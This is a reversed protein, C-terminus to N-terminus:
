VAAAIAMDSLRQFRLINDGEDLLGTTLAVFTLELEPDVWFLTSGAGHNGFTRPSSLTGFQHQCVQDGRMSFGLGIYAPFPKWGRSLALAKYLQNPQDGTRNRTALDLIRPGVIRVGDLEGGRRLAEAFSLIDGATSIMGVWPMEAHEEEFAGHPGLNSHGLHNAAFTAPMDPVVHRARLGPRVGVSTDKMGLPTLIEDAVIQRYPRGAPDTRRVMEGLLAHAAMPSYSVTLGPEETGHVYKCIGDIVEELVDIYSGPQPTFVGPLGTRHTLLHEITIDERPKGSFEPIVESVKTTLALRGREIAQFILVNTFAKTMSFLSIISDMQLPSPDDSRKSGIAESFGIKGHRAVMVVAGHYRGSSVDDEIATKLRSLQRADLGGKMATTM